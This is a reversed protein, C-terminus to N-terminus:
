LGNKKKRIINGIIHVANVLTIAGCTFMWPMVFLMKIGGFREINFGSFVASQIIYICTVLISIIKIRKPLPYKQEKEFKICPIFYALLVPISEILDTPNEIISIILSPWFLIIAGVTIFALFFAIFGGLCGANDFPDFFGIVENFIKKFIKIM